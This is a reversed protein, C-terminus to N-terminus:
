RSDIKSLALPDDFALAAADFSVGHKRQNAENKDNDWEFRM